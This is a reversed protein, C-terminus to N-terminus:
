TRLKSYISNVVSWKPVQLEVSALLLLWMMWLQRKNSDSLTPVSLSNATPQNEMMMTMTTAIIAMWWLKLSKPFFNHFTTMSQPATGGGGERLFFIPFGFESRFLFYTLNKMDEWSLTFPFVKQFSHSKLRREGGALGCECLYAELDKMVLHM